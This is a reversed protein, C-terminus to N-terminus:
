KRARKAPLANALKAMFDASLPPERYREAMGRSELYLATEESAEFSQGEKVRGYDGILQRLATLRIM